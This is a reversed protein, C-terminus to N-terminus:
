NHVVFQCWVSTYQFGFWKQSTGIVEPQGNYKYFKHIPIAQSVNGHHAIMTSLIPDNAPSVRHNHYDLYIM